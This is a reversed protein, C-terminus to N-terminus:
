SRDHGVVIVLGGASRHHSHETLPIDGFRRDAIEPGRAEGVLLDTEGHLVGLRAGRSGFAGRRSRQAASHESAEHPQQARQENRADSRDDDPAHQGRGQGPRADAGRGASQDAREDREANGFLVRAVEILTQPAAGDQHRDVRPRPGAVRERDQLAVAHIETGRPAAAAIRIPAHLHVWRICPRTM